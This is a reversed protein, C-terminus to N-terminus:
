VILELLMELAGEARGCTPTWALFSEVRTCPIKWIRFYDVKNKVAKSRFLVHPDLGSVLIEGLWAM